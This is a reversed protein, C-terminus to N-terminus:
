TGRNGAFTDCADDNGSEMGKRLWATRQASSGHTFSAEVPRRGADKMLPDDSSPDFDDLRM